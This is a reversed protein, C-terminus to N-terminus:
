AVRDRSAVFAELERSTVIARRGVHKVRIQGGAVLREVTRRSVHLIEAVQDLTFTVLLTM